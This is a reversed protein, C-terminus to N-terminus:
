SPDHVSHPFLTRTGMVRPSLGHGGREMGPELLDGVVEVVERVAVPQLQQQLEGPVQGGQGLAVGLVAVQELGYGFALRRKEQGDLDLGVRDHVQEELCGLFRRGGAAEGGDQCAPRSPSSAASTSAVGASNELWSPNCSRTLGSRSRPM